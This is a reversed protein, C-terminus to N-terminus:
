SAPSNGADPQRTWSSDAPSPQSVHNQLSRVTPPITSITASYTVRQLHGGGSELAEGGRPGEEVELAGAVAGGCGFAGGQQPCPEGGVAALPGVAAERGLGSVAEVGEGAGREQAAEGRDRAGDGAARGPAVGGLHVSTAALGGSHAQDPHQPATKVTIFEAGQEHVAVRVHRARVAAGDHPEDGFAAGALGHAGVGGERAEVRADAPRTRNFRPGQVDRM